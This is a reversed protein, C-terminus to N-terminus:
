KKHGFLSDLFGRFRKNEPKHPHPTPRKPKQVPKAAAKRTPVAPHATEFGHQFYGYMAMQSDVPPEGQKPKVRTYIGDPQMERANVTDRLQLDLIGRLKKAIERDDVRVGVEVRRETNRTLFDGSAIYITMDEGEGFCYIRSHELYRGVISRIHVNETKGPVGAKICCIGRVIMDVRVGACSAESIKNIIQPDNISNNKLIMSAPLGRRARDIQRDMQELLVSKFRLPAVLMTDAESTLRQLAMNNFVASAEEGIEQRTTIFSLDTYLESTKENYNGTGIQTLYHYKGNVKSTILTLKSHVKYDDFGYFVTCGAEELQKSWDINNQEDFRARLEVMATVEKGNEAANILAQVIQSDSAMRYLTMKISVVDPDSGAKMLMRIFPRISQYPYSLLVDHKHAEAYLDYDAPAQIPRAPPYSFAPNSDASVRSALRFLLGPDLPSTQTYCRDAPVVLKDRLFKVIEQPASPWFQLRVAALKRRKKLLESMVDRFDIDHDMMGEDVTIDANRTVRFLCANQLTSKNFISAAYHAILEDAFAFSTTGDPNKIFLLQEFQGSLPIIGYYVGDNKSSLQAAYYIEKNRLFPFPHRQDVVQPSLIPLIESTFYAKWYHEQQKDLHEFDVKIYKNEKLASLLHQYYKDCKAQLEAVRPTIAAIQESPTMHTVIDLKNNKLLTQDYLSGVRVMFFEDMNSGFIAAFKIREALPVSKEKALALVRSDFDLWSLERNIFISESPNEM